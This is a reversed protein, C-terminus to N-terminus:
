PMSRIIRARSWRFWTTSEIPSAFVATPLASVLGNLPLRHIEVGTVGFGREALALSLNGAGSGLELLEASTPIQAASLAPIIHSLMEEYDAESSWGDAGVERLKLYIEGHSAYDVAQPSM